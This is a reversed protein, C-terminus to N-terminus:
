EEFPILHTTGEIKFRKTIKTGCSDMTGIAVRDYYNLLDIFDKRSMMNKYFVNGNILKMTISTAYEEDTDNKYFKLKVLFDNLIQGDKGCMFSDGNRYNIYNRRGKQDTIITISGSGSEAFVTSYYIKGDFPDDDISLSWDGIYQSSDEIKKFPNAKPIGDLREITSVCSTLTILVLIFFFNKM